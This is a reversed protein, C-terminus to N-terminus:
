KKASMAQLLKDLYNRKIKIISGHKTGAPFNLQGSIDTWNEIDTSKVAGYYKEGSHHDYYVFYESGKKV